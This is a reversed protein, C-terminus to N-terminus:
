VNNMTGCNWCSFFYDAYPSDSRIENVAWCNVCVISQVFLQGEVDGLKPRGAEIRKGNLASKDRQKGLRVTVETMIDGRPSVREIAQQFHVALQNETGLPSGPVPPEM